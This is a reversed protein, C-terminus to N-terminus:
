SVLSCFSSRIFNDVAWTVNFGADNFGKEDMRLVTLPGSRQGVVLTWVFRTLNGKSDFTMDGPLTPQKEALAQAEEIRAHFDFDPADNPPKSVIVLPQPKAKAVKRSSKRASKKVPKRKAAVVTKEVSTQASTQPAVAPIAHAFEIGAAFVASAIM